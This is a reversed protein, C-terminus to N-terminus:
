FSTIRNCILLAEYVDLTVAKFHFTNCVFQWSMNCNHEDNPWKSDDYIKVKTIGLNGNPCKWHPTCYRFGWIENANKHNNSAMNLLNWVKCIWSRLVNFSHLSNVKVNLRWFMSVLMSQCMIYPECQCINNIIRKPFEPESSVVRNSWLIGILLLEIFPRSM